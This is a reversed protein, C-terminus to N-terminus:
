LCLCMSRSRTYLVRCDVRARNANWPLMMFLATLVLGHARLRRPHDKDAIGIITFSGERSMGTMYRYLKFMLKKCEEDKGHGLKITGGVLQSTSNLAGQISYGM